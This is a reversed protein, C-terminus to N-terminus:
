EGENVSGVDPISTNIPQCCLQVKSAVLEVNSKSDEVDWIDENIHGGVQDEFM